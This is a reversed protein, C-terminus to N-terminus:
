ERLNGLFKRIQSKVPAPGDDTLLYQIVKGTLAPDPSGISPQMDIASKKRDSKKTKKDM